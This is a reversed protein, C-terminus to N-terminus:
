DLDGEIETTNYGLIELGEELHDGLMPSGLLYRATGDGQHGRAEDVLEQFEAADGDDRGLWFLAVLESKETQTLDNIWSTLEGLTPDDARDQLVGLPNDEDDGSDVPGVDKADFERAKVIIWGLTRLPITLM